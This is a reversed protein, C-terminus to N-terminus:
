EPMSINGKEAKSDITYRLIKAKSDGRAYNIKERWALRMIKLEKSYDPNNILNNKEKPDTKLHYLEEYVAPEGKVSSEIYNQYVAIQPDHNGYLLKTLNINHDKAIAMVDKSSINENKYYRIYKWHKDQVSECRPNGFHTSWLNETFLYDRVPEDNGEIMNNLPKGQYSSPINIGAYQLMTPAIDISQVLENNVIGKTKEPSMPNHIIMPVKTCIEYCLAKGGLGDEGWFIGHDSTFIVITNKDLNLQKLTARLNGVLMDIGTVAQMNRIIREKLDTQNDVFDYIDQRDDVHLVEPPLKPTKIDEKAVYDEPLPIEKDRYLSKYTEPDTDLMKMTSTSAGHPLNFAISLCFPQEKPRQNLFHKAGKLKHENSFFDSVGEDMIEIQTNQRAATFIEHRDKPYFSLHGHGAYWYDFSADMLGSQYGGDGIPAHNKGVYGTYYGNNKMVVPYSENWAEESVSTGSNFNVSHKREFQSLLISIRSPTCIASTVHANEFLIGEQALQDLHPTKILENGSSGLLDYRHDDTLIFIFNPKEKTDTQAFSHPLSILQIIIVLFLNSLLDSVRKKRTTLNM